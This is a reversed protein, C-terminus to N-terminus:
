NQFHMILFKHIEQIKHIRFPIQFLLISSSSRLDFSLVLPCFKNKKRPNQILILYRTYLLFKNRHFSFYWSWFVSTMMSKESFRKPKTKKIIILAFLCPIYKKLIIIKFFRIDYGTEQDKNKTYVFLFRNKFFKLNSM